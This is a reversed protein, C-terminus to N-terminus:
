DLQGDDAAGSAPCSSASTSTPSSHRVVTFALMSTRAALGLAAAASGDSAAAHSDPSPAARTIFTSRPLACGGGDGGDGGGGVDGVGDGGGGVGGGGVGGDVGGGGGGEGGM